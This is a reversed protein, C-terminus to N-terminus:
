LMIGVVPAPQEPGETGTVTVTLGPGTAVAVGADWLMQEPVAVDMANVDDTAPVVYEHVADPVAPTVPYEFPVPDVMACVNDLLPDDDPGTVYVIVGVAAQGPDGIVTVTVTLGTGLAIAVGADCDKHEPEVVPM